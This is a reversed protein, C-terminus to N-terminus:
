SNNVLRAVPDNLFRVSLSIRKDQIGVIRHPLTVDFLIPGSLTFQSVKVLDKENYSAFELENANNLLEFSDIKSFQETITNQCNQIPFNLSYRNVRRTILDSHITRDHSTRAIIAIGAVSLKHDIIFKVFRPCQKFCNEVDTLFFDQRNNADETILSFEKLERQINDYDDIKIQYNYM